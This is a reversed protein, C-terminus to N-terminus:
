DFMRGRISLGEQAALKKQIADYLIMDEGIMEDVLERDAKTAIEPTFLPKSPNVRQAPEFGFKGRRWASYRSVDTIEIDSQRIADFASIATGTGLYNCIINPKRVRLLQRGLEALYGSPPDPEISKLGIESLWLSVDRRERGINEVARTLIFSVYSYLIDRPHRVSTFVDDEFRILGRDLYWRLSQHGCVAISESLAIGVAFRQLHEFLMPRSTMEPQCLHQNLSPNHRELTTQLDTGACKPVHVFILRRKEPFANLVIERLRLQFEDGQLAQATALRANFNPGDAVVAASPARGLTNFYIQRRTVGAFDIRDIVSPLGKEANYLAFALITQRANVPASMIQHM